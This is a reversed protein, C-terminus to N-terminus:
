GCMGSASLNGGAAIVRIPHTFGLTAHLTM